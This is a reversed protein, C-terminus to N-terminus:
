QKPLYQQPIESLPDYPKASRVISEIKLQLNGDIRHDNIPNDM